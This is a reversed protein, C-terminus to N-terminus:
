PIAWTHLISNLSRGDPHGAWLASHPHLDIGL